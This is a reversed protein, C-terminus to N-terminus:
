ETEKVVVSVLIWDLEERREVERPTMNGAGDRM